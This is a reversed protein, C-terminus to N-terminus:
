LDENDSKSKKKKKKRKRKKKKKWINEKQIKLVNKMIMIIKKKM